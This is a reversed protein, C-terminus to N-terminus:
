QTKRCAEPKYRSIGSFRRHLSLRSQYHRVKYHHDQIFEGIKVPQFVLYGLPKAVAQSPTIKLEFLWTKGADDDIRLNRVTEAGVYAPWYGKKQIDPPIAKATYVPLIRKDIFVVIKHGVLRLAIRKLDFFIGAAGFCKIDM